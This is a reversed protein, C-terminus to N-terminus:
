HAPMCKAKASPVVCEELTTMRAKTEGAIYASSLMEMIEDVRSNTTTKIKAMKILTYHYKMTPKIQIERIVLSTSSREMYEDTM